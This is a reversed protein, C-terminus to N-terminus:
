EIDDPIELEKRIFAGVEEQPIELVYSFEEELLKVASKLTNSDTVPLKKGQKYLVKEREYLCIVMRLLDDSVGDLLIDRFRDTRARRDTDWEMLDDKAGELMNIIDDRSMLERMKSTLAENGVPVFVSSQTDRKLKLIYYPEPLSDSTIKMLRIDDLVCVGSTGYVLLQGKEFHMKGM